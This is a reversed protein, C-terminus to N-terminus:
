DVNCIVQHGEKPAWLKAVQENCRRKYCNIYVTEYAWVIKEVLRAKQLSSKSLGGKPDSDNCKSDNFTRLLRFTRIHQELM